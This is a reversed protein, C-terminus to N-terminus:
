EAHDSLVASPKHHSSIAVAPRLCGGVGEASVGRELARPAAEAAHRLRERESVSGVGVHAGVGLALGELQHKLVDVQEEEANADENEGVARTRPWHEHELARGYRASRPLRRRRGGKSGRSFSETARGACRGVCVEAPEPRIKLRPERHLVDGDVAEDGGAVGVVAAGDATHM